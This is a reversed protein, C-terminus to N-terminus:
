IEKYEGAGLDIISEFVDNIDKIRINNQINIKSGEMIKDLIEISKIKAENYKLKIEEVPNISYRKNGEKDYWHQVVGKSTSYLQMRHATLMQNMLSEVIIFVRPDKLDYKDNFYKLTQNIKNIEIPCLTRKRVCENSINKVAMDKAYDYRNDVLATNKLKDQKKLEELEKNFINNFEKEIRERQCHCVSLHELNCIAVINDFGEVLIDDHISIPRENGELSKLPSNHDDVVSNDILSIVIDNKDNVELNSVKLM